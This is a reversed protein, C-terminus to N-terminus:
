APTWTSQGSEGLYTVQWTHDDLGVLAINDVPNGGSQVASHLSGDPMRILCGSPAQVLLPNSAQNSIMIRQSTDPTPLTYSVVGSGAFSNGYGTTHDARTLVNVQDTTTVQISGVIDMGFVPRGNSFGEFVLQGGLNPLIAGRILIPGEYLTSQNM